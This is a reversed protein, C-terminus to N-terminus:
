RNWKYYYYYYYHEISINSKKCRSIILLADTILILDLLIITETTKWMLWHDGLLRFAKKKMLQMLGSLSFFLGSNTQKM